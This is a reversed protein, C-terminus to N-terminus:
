YINITYFVGSLRYYNIISQMQKDDYVVTSPINVIFGRFGNFESNTRLFTITKYFQWDLPNASPQSNTNATLSIYVSNGDVAYEGIAYPVALDWNKYMYFIPKVESKKYLYNVNYISNDTIYIGRNVNDFTDNLIKDFYITRSNHAVKSIYYARVNDFDILFLKLPKILAHIFELRKTKHLFSPLNERVIKDWNLLYNFM